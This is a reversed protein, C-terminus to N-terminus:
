IKRKLNFQILYELQASEGVSRLDKLAEASIHELWEKTKELGLLAVYSRGDQKKDHQDLIDDAIQFALGLSAGFKRLTQVASPKAGAIYAAGEVAVRIMAGTKLEHMKQLENYTIKDTATIDMVQGTIMGQWGSAETLLKCLNVALHPNDGYAQLIKDFAQTLLADGALLAMAEGYVIHNTPLGRRMSDDDMCPLDDHILSYSHIMEVAMAFPLLRGEEAGLMQGTLLTLLPRFRKGGNAVSYAVSEKLRNVGPGVPLAEGNIESKIFANISETTKQIEDEVSLMLDM